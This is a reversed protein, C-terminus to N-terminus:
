SYRKSLKYLKMKFHELNRNFYNEGPSELGGPIFPVSQTKGKDRRLTVASGAPAEPADWLCFLSFEALGATM